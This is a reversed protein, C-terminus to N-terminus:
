DVVKLLRILQDADLSTGILKIRMPEFLPLMRRYRGEMPTHSNLERGKFESWLGMRDIMFRTIAMLSTENNGDFGRFEVHSGFPHAEKELKEKDKKTLKKYASEIFSWMDLVDYVLHVDRPDDEEDTFLGSLERKAAWYHGGAIVGSIFDPDIEGGKIKLHRYIDKMMFALLKEGDSFRVGEGGSRMLGLEVLRRMAEARSPADDQKERWVDVRSLINEDVRMEFRESMPGM